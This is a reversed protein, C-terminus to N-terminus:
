IRKLSSREGDNFIKIETKKEAQKQLLFKEIEKIRYERERKLKVYM